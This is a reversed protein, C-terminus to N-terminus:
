VCDCGDVHLRATSTIPSQALPIIDLMSSQNGEVRTEGKNRRRKRILGILGM